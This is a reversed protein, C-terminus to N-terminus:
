ISGDRYNNAAELCKRPSGCEINNVMADFKRAPEKRMMDLATYGNRQAAKLYYGTPELKKNIEILDQVLSNFTYRTAM